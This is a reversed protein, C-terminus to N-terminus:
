KKTQFPQQCSLLQYLSTSIQYISALKKQYSKLIQNQYSKLVKNVNILFDFSKIHLM